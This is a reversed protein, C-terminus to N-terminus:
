LRWYIFDKEFESKDLSGKIDFIIKRSNHAYIRDFQQKTIDKFQEQSVAIIIADLNV